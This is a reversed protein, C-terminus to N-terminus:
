DLGQMTQNFKMEGRDVKDHPFPSTASDVAKKHTTHTGLLMQLVASTSLCRHNSIASLAAASLSRLVGKSPACSSKLEQMGANIRPAANTRCLVLVM